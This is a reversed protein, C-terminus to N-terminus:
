PGIHIYPAWLLPNSPDEQYLAHIAHNLAQAANGTEPRGGRTLTTYVTDAVYPAPMDAITWMTAIVHQYGLFQMAAALHIAEDLHRIGGTATQCASLFALDRHQTPLAALDTITLTGDWLAFGSRGPDTHEQAAHCALHVWSHGAIAAAVDARLARREALQHNLEGPPFHRALVELEAPVAPLPRLGPATPMGVGLHHVPAPPRPQRSRSLATLTPTYSSTVRDLVRDRDGTSSARRRPHHGAAHIPLVTLPGTPCWWVRPRPEGDRSPGAHGLTTLVPEAIVDWLWDLVDLVANRHKEWDRFGRWATAGALAALLKNAQDVASGQTLGPLGIVRPRERGAEVIMAHCGYQSANVIVVPGDAAAAVLQSYPTAALFHEFGDLARTEALLQDWERAKRRRLDIDDQQQRTDWADPVGDGSLSSPPLARNPMPTDLLNRIQALRGALAPHRETLRTLDSRVNLAQTWLVSRGEDL